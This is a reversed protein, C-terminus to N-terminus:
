LVGANKDAYRKCATLFKQTVVHVSAFLQVNTHAHVCRM